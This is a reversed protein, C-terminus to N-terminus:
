QFPLKRQPTTCFKSISQICGTTATRSFSGNAPATEFVYDLGFNRATSQGGNEKHLSIVNDHKAALSDCLAGSGDTSGDDVLILEFSKFTQSLFSDVCRLFYKNVNYVPIIVSIEPM